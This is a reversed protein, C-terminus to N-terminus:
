STSFQLGFDYSLSKQEETPVRWVWNFLSPFHFCCTTGARFAHAFVSLRCLAANACGSHHRCFLNWSHLCMQLRSIETNRAVGQCVQSHRKLSVGFVHITKVRRDEAPPQSANNVTNQTWGALITYNNKWLSYLVITYKRDSTRLEVIRDQISSFVTFLPDRLCKSSRLTSNRRPAVRHPRCTCVMIVQVPFNM